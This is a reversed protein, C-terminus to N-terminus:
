PRAPRRGPLRAGTPRASSAGEPGALANSVGVGRSATVELGATKSACPWAPGRTQRSVPLRGLLGAAPEPRYLVLLPRARSRRGGLVGGGGRQRLWAGRRGSHSRWAGLRVRSPDLRWLPLRRRSVRRRSLGRWSLRRRPLGGRWPLRWRPVRGWPLGDRWSLRRRSPRGWPLRWWRSVGWRRPANRGRRSANWRGRPPVPGGGGRGGRVQTILGDDMHAAVSPPAFIELAEAEPLGLCLLSVGLCVNRALHTWRM